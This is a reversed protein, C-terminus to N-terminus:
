RILTITGQIFGREGLEDRYKLEYVYTGIPASQGRYTGDWSQNPDKTQFVRNGWRDVVHLNFSQFDCISIPRFIDNYGDFNPTFGNPFQVPCACIEEFIDISQTVSGCENTVTLTYVGPSTVKRQHGTEGDSWEFTAGPIYDTGIIKGENNCVTAAVPLNVTPYDMFVVDISDRQTICSNDIEVWYTGSESITEQPSTGGTSWLYHANFDVYNSTLEVEDLGCYLADEGLKFNLEFPGIRKLSVNDIVYYSLYEGSFDNAIELCETEDYASFNGIIIYEEDGTAQYYGKIMAWGEQKDLYKGTHNVIDAQLELAGFGNGTVHDVSFHVGLSKLACESKEMLSVHMEFEYCRGAVLPESLKNQAYDRVDGNATYALIGLYSSGTMAEEYGVWNDPVQIGMTVDACEAYLDPHGHETAPTWGPLLHVGDLQDPCSSYTEFSPNVVLNQGILAESILLTSLALLWFIQCLTKMREYNSSLIAM